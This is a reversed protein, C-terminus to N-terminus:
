ACEPSATTRAKSGVVMGGLRVPGATREGMLDRLVDDDEDAVRLGGSPLGGSSQVFMSRLWGAGDHLQRHM